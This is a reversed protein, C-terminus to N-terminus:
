IVEDKRRIMVPYQGEFQEHKNEKKFMYKILRRRRDTMENLRNGLREMLLPSNFQSAGEKQVDPMHWVYHSIFKEVREVQVIQMNEGQLLNLNKVLRSVYEILIDDGTIMVKTSQKAPQQTPANKNLKSSTQQESFSNSHIM